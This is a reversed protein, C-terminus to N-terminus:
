REITVEITGTNDGLQGQAENVRFHLEGTQVAKYEGGLGVAEVTIPLASDPEETIPAALTMLLKGLPSGQHYELTVGEPQSPWPRPTDRLVFEGTAAVRFREGQRLYVGSAQWSRDAALDFRHQATLRVPQQSIALLGHRPEFGYDLDSLFANWHYRVRPWQTSLRRFLWRNLSQDEAMPQKLLRQFVEATDPHNKLFLVAAWSWAYAEVQQHATPGYRLVSELSPAVGDALQQRILSVRGWYPVEHKTQPIIGMTLRQGDWHHTGLLEALGEMLWPPGSSGYKRHMFWHTGEHLLLHRRYYASPQESVWLRDGVQFGYPFNPLQAPLLKHAVFRPRDLMLYAKVRWSEVAAPEVEFVECWLPVAADFVRTLERISDDLPMDTILEIHKGTVVRFGDPLTEDYARAPSGASFVMVVWLWPGISRLFQLNSNRRMALLTCM